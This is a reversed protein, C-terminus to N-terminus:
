RAIGQKLVNVATPSLISPGATDGYLGVGHLGLTGWTLILGNGRGKACRLIVEGNYVKIGAAYGLSRAREMIPQAQRRQVKIRARKASLTEIM